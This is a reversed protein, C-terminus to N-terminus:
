REHVAAVVVRTPQAATEIIDAYQEPIEVGDGNVQVKSDREHEVSPSEVVAIKASLCPM